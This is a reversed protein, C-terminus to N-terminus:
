DRDINFNGLKRIVENFIDKQVDMEQKYYYALHKEIKRNNLGQITLHGNTFGKKYKLFGFFTENEEYKITVVSTTKNQIVGNFVRNAMKLDVKFELSESSKKIRDFM